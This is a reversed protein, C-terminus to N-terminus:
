PLPCKCTIHSSMGPRCVGVSPCWPLDNPNEMLSYFPGSAVITSQHVFPGDVSHASSAGAASALAMTTHNGPQLMTTHGGNNVAVSGQLSTVVVQNNVRAVDFEASGDKPAITINGVEAYMGNVTRVHATGDVLEIASKKYQIASNPKLVVSSGSRNVSVMSSSSTVLRDGSFISSAKQVSAGNLTVNGTAYLMASNTQASSMVAFCVVFLLLVVSIRSARHV